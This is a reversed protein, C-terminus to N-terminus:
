LAAFEFLKRMQRQWTGNYLRIIEEAPTEGRTAIKWLPQLYITEDYGQQNLRGRNKLGNEAITLVALAIDKINKDRFGAKLGHRAANVRLMNREQRSWDNILDAAQQLAKPDYFLGTWLASLASLREKNGCDAGRMEIYTKLRAEPFITTLHNQWDLLLPKEGPLVPLKGGLFDRFSQGSVDIYNGSRYVFYMPVDIAWEVYREFGFGQEFVFPLLGTRDPDTDSWIHSRYSLFSNQMGDSFPSFAFLATVIPQLALAIRLKVVMDAESNYDYNAQVTCTRLMMDLGLFGKKVMYNRMIDYRQKPMIPMDQRRWNPIFGIGLFGLGMEGAIQHIESLHLEIENYTDHITPLPAGSLEFQGAPELTIMAQERKLAILNGKEYIPTWNFRTMAQLLAKIGNDGGYSVCSLDSKNFVFKEHETGIRNDAFDKIGSQTWAILQDINELEQQNEEM